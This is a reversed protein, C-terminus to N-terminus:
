FCPHQTTEMVLRIIPTVDLWVPPSIELIVHVDNQYDPLIGYLVLFQNKYM